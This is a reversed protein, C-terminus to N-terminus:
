IFETNFILSPAKILFKTKNEDKEQMQGNENGVGREPLGL